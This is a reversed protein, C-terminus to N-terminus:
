QTSLQSTPMCVMAETYTKPVANTHLIPKECDCQEKSPINTVMNFIFHM